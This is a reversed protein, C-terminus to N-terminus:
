KPSPNANLWVRVIASKIDQSSPEWNEAARYTKLFAVMTFRSGRDIM